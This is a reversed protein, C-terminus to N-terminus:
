AGVRQTVRRQDGRLTDTAVRVTGALLVLASGVVLVRIPGGATFMSTFGGLGLLVATTRPVLRRRYLSVGLVLWGLAGLLGLADIALTDVTLHAVVTVAADQPAHRVLQGTSLSMAGRAIISGAGCLMLLGCVFATRAKSDAVRAALVWTTLVLLVGGVMVLAGGLDARAPHDSFGQVVETAGSTGADNWPVSLVRAVVTVVPGLVLLAARARPSTLTTLTAPATPNTATM